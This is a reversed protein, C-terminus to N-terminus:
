RTRCQIQKRSDFSQWRIAQAYSSCVFAFLSAISTVESSFEAEAAAASCRLSETPLEVGEAVPSVVAVDVATGVGEGSRM